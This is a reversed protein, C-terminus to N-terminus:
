MHYVSLFGALGKKDFDERHGMNRSPGAFMGEGFM